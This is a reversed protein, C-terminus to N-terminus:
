GSASPSFSIGGQLIRSIRELLSSASLSTGLEERALEGCRGNIYASVCASDFSSMGRAMMGACLGSLVDGTGGVSMEPVGTRNYRTLLGDRRIHDSLSHEPSPSAIMDLPGKVLIDCGTREILARVAAMAEDSWQMCGEIEILPHLLVEPDYEIGAGDLLTRLEGRHPTLLICGEGRVSGQMLPSIAKLGDADVVVDLGREGCSIFLKRLFEVTEDSRGTGPGMLVADAWELEADMDDIVGPDLQFPDETDLRSVILDPSASAVVEWIGRPVCVRVLDVGMKVAALSALIVAGTFPGGGVILLKGGEGKHTEPGKVPIRRLDGRGVYLSAERPIGIEAIELEGCEPRPTGDVVMSDKVDHFTVTRRANVHVPTGVGTPIDISIVPRGSANMMEVADRYVGRPEGSAGSGLLGDVIIEASEFTRELDEKEMSEMVLVRVNVPLSHFAKRAITSRIRAPERALLVSVPHGGESLHRAAVLGDGGNNGTGLVFLVSGGSHERSIIEALARGANGMLVSPPVGCEGSNIDLISVDKPSIM